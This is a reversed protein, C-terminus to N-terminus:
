ESRFFYIENINRNCDSYKLNMFNRNCDFYIVTKRKLYGADLIWTGNVCPKIFIFVLHWRGLYHFLYISSCMTVLAVKHKRNLHCYNLFRVFRRWNVVIFWKVVSVKREKWIQGSLIPACMVRAAVLHNNFFSNLRRWYNMFLNSSESIIKKIHSSRKRKKKQRKKARTPETYILM